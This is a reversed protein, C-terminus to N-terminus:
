RLISSPTIPVGEGEPQDAFWKVDEIDEVPPHASMPLM